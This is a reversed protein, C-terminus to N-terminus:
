IFILAAICWIDVAIGIVSIIAFGIDGSKEVVVASLEAFPLNVTEGSETKGIIVSNSCYGDKKPFSFTKGTKSYATVIDEDCYPKLETIPILDKAYFCNILSALILMTLFLKFLKYM